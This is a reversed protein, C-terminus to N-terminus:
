ETVEVKSDIMEDTFVKWPGVEEMVYCEDPGDMDIKKITVTDGALEEMSPVIDHTGYQEGFKLDKRIKVKDGVKYKM